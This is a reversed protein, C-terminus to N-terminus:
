HGEPLRQSEWVMAAPDKAQGPRLVTRIVVGPGKGATTLVPRHPSAHAESVARHLAHRHRPM